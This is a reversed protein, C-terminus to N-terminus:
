ALHFEPLTVVRHAFRRLRQPLGEDDTVTKMLTQAVNDDVRSQLFLDLLFRAAARPTVHGHREAIATPDLRGDYPGSASLLEVALNSRGILTATNIWHRGGAWGKVTPPRYLNQGLAALDTGLRTTPVLGELGIIIGLAFEVPSKVRQRYAGASFFVNSRLITEVLSALDYDKGFSEVLPAMLSESPQRTESVLWAYLKRVLLRPTAPEGLVIRVVDEGNFNGEHGLIRKVGPDHERPLYRLQDQLVFWGTFARAAERVDQESFNGPGLSFRTLLGRAFNENPQVKRNAGSDLGVLMAPDRSVAALLTRYDGLAHRRLLQVHRLMLRANGVKLNSVGFHGHWFLTMKELLPQPTRIMRRLWWARLGDASGSGAASADYDDYAHDFAAPDDEPRLLRDVARQPGDSLARQLQQWNAGFGARRFLHGALALTWPRRRDPEYPAWARDPDAPETAASTTTATAPGRAADAGREILM